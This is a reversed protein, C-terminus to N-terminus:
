RGSCPVGQVACRAQLLLGQEGSGCLHLSVIDICVIADIQRQRDAGTDQQALIGVQLLFQNLLELRV